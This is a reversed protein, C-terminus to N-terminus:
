LTRFYEVVARAEEETLNQNAMPASFEALLKKAIEDKKVMEEPNLIMNMVWAPNRREFIGKPAPGIFKKTAKHCATCKKKYIDKGIGAMVQDVEAPLTLSKVPGIGTNQMPDVKKKVMSKPPKAKPKSGSHDNNTENGGCSIMFASILLILISYIFKSNSM